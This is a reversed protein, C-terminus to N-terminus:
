NLKKFGLTGLILRILFVLSLAALLTAVAHLPTTWGGQRIGPSNTWLICALAAVATSVTVAAYIELPSRKQLEPLPGPWWGQIGPWLQELRLAAARANKALVLLALRYIGVLPLAVILPILFFAFLVLALITRGVVSRPEWGAARLVPQMVRRVAPFYPEFKWEWKNSSADRAEVGVELGWFNGRSIRLLEADDDWVSQYRLEPPFEARLEEILRRMVKEAFADRACEDGGELLFRRTQM